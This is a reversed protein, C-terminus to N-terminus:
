ASKGQQGTTRSEFWADFARAPFLIRRSNIFTMPAGAARMAAWFAMRNGYRLRAMVEDSKYNEPKIPGTSQETKKTDSM